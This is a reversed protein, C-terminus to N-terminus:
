VKRKNFDWQKCYNLKSLQLSNSCNEDTSWNGSPVNSMKMFLMLFNRKKLYINM